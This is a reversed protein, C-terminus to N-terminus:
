KTSDNKEGKSAVIDDLGETLYHSDTGQKKICFNDEARKVLSRSEEIDEESFDYGYKEV